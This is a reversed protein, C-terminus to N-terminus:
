SPFVLCMLASESFSRSLCVILESSIWPRGFIELESVNVLTSCIWWCLFYLSSKRYIVTIERLWWHTYITFQNTFLNLKLRLLWNWRRSLKVLSVVVASCYCNTICFIDCHLLTTRNHHDDIDDSDSDHRHDSYLLWSSTVGSRWLRSIWLQCWNLSISIM